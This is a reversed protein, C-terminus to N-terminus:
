GRLARQYADYEADPTYTGGAFRRPVFEHPPSPVGYTCALCTGHIHRDRRHGCGQVDCIADPPFAYLSM